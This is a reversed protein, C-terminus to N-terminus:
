ADNRSRHWRSRSRYARYRMAEQRTARPEWYRAYTANREREVWLMRTEVRGAFRALASDHLRKPTTLTALTKPNVGFEVAAQETTLWSLRVHRLEDEEQALKRVYEDVWATPAMHPHPFRPGRILVGAERAERRIREHAYRTNGKISAHADALVTYEGNRTPDHYIDMREAKDKVAEVSRNYGRAKLRESTYVGGKTRYHAKLLRLEPETWRPGPM